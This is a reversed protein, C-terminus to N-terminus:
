LPTGETLVRRSLSEPAEAADVVHVDIGCARGILSAIAFTDAADKVMIDVDSREGPEGWAYSGFLWAAGCLRQARAQAIAERVRPLVTAKRAGAAIRERSVEEEFHRLVARRFDALKAPDPLRPPGM